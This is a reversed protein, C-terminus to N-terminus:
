QGNQFEKEDEDEQDNIFKSISRFYGAQM